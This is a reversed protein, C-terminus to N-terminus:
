RLSLHSVDPGVCGACDSTVAVAAAATATAAGGSLTQQLQELHHQQAAAADTASNVMAALKQLQEQTRLQKEVEQNQLAAPCCCPRARLCTTAHSLLPPCARLHNCPLLLPPCALLHNCPLLLPPCARLNNCPCM